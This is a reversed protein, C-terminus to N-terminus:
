SKYYMMKFIKLRRAFDMALLNKIHVVPHLIPMNSGTQLLNEGFYKGAKIMLPSISRFINQFWRGGRQYRVEQFYNSSNGGGAQMCYYRQYDKVYLYMKKINYNYM